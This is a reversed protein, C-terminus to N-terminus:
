DEVRVVWNFTDEVIGTKIDKLTKSLRNTYEWSEHGNLQHDEGKYGITVIPMLTAATGTAFMEKVEGSAIGEVIEDISIRREEVEIGWSKLLQIASDRTIGELITGDLDPTIVKDGKRVFVNTTGTEEIFKYERADTWLVQTYGEQQAKRTALMQSAYNGACKAFGVGGEVARVYTDEVKVKLPQSYYANVPCTFVSFTYDESPKVGIFADTAFMFPRIYLGSGQQTPIWNKDLRILSKLSEVFMEEPLTQMCLREASKNLRKANDYPRFLLPTGDPAKQAKMGEFIAQGYHIASIAMSMPVEGYPIIRAENWLGNKFDIVLQHDSFVKGFQINDFDLETVRSKAVPQINVSFNTARENM